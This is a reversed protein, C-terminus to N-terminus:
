DIYFESSVGNHQIYKRIRVLDVLRLKQFIRELEQKQFVPTKSLMTYDLVLKMSNLEDYLFYKLVFYSVITIEYKSLLQKLQEINYRQISTNVVKVKDSLTDSFYLYSLIKTKLENPLRIDIKM